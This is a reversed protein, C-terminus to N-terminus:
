IKKYILVKYNKSNKTSIENVFEVRDDNKLAQRVSLDNNGGVVVCLLGDTFLFNIARKSYYIVPPMSAYKTDFDVENYNIKDEAIRDSLNTFPQTIVIDYKNNDGKYDSVFYDALDRISSRYLNKYARDDCVADSIFSCFIDTNFSTIDLYKPALELFKGAGSNTHLCKIYNPNESTIGNSATPFITHIFEWTRKILHSPFNYDNCGTYERLFSINSKTPVYDNQNTLIFKQIQKNIDM